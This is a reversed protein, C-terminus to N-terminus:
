LHLNGANKRKVKLLCGLQAQIYAAIKRNARRGESLHANFIQFTHFM